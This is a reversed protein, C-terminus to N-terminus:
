FTYINKLKIEEIEEEEKVKKRCEGRRNYEGRYARGGRRSDKDKREKEEEM